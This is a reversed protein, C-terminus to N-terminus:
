GAAGDPEFQAWARECLFGEGNLQVWLRTEPGLSHRIINHDVKQRVLEICILRCLSDPASAVLYSRGSTIRAFDALVYGQNLFDGPEKFAHAGALFAQLMAYLAAPDPLPAHCYIANECPQAWNVNALPEVCFEELDEEYEGASPVPLAGDSAAEFVLTIYQPPEDDGKDSWWPHGSVVMEVRQGCISVREVRTPHVIPRRALLEVLDVRM